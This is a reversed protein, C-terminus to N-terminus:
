LLNDLTSWPVDTRTHIRKVLEIADPRTELLRFAVNALAIDECEFCFVFNGQTGNVTYSKIDSQQELIGSLGSDGSQLPIAIMLRSAGGCDDIRPRADRIKESLWQVLQEPGGNNRAVVNDLSVQKYANALVQQAATRIEYPLRNTLIASESLVNLYGGCEKVLSEHVQLETKSVHQECAQEINESLLRDMSFNGTEVDNLTDVSDFQGGISDLDERFQGIMTMPSEITEAVVRYHVVAHRILFERIRAECYCTVVADLEELNDRRGRAKELNFKSLRSLCQNIESECEASMADLQKRMKGLDNAIESITLSANHLNMSDADFMNMVTAVLQEGIHKSKDSIQEAIEQSSELDIHSSDRQSMPRSLIGDIMALLSSLRGTTKAMVIERASATMTELKEGLVEKACKRVDDLVRDQNLGLRNFEEDVFGTVDFELRQDGSVWRRILGRGVRDVAVEGRNMNLPTTSSVGFTRLAFHEINSELNRCKDLFESCRSTTSLYVYEAVKDLKEDFQSQQLDNGLDNFYTFDFPPQSEFEPLGISDDGPFGEEVFHRMETFFAFANAAALGPDRTRQYTSHLLLGVLSDSELGNEHMLLKITYALDLAMGSGVGGSISTVLYVRPQLEGPDMELTDASAAINEEAVIQRLASQIRDCISEFHDAFALRGLPRLGETQLSRPINYIWRRSLWSLHSKNRQRYVEPKRLPTEVIEDRNLAGPDDSMRLENLSQHDTDISLVRFSPINEIDGHRCVIQNKIKQAIKNATSGVTVVLTPRLKANAEDVDPPDLSRLENSLFPHGGGSLVATVERNSLTNPHGSVESEGVSSFNTPLTRRIAKKISRKKNALEDIMDRCCKFRVNPDKSLAKAIVPQDAKPLPRLNPKGHMHQAALQAPTSGPFPRTGTLMEQYVIALSYQDSRAGPCGDFLEPAAYAPTMGSMLSQSVNEVDKILGFDAVKVHNGVMLVNEPKVDLHQLNHEDSIYDLADAISGMHRILEDRPIGTEGKLAHENFLEALSNDALETVVILQGDVVEIRELSLLFPHRLSKARDLAKLEAQARKEDHFGYVIKVAKHLGGPAIASWVEGFGGSGIREQLTYGLIDKQETPPNSTM